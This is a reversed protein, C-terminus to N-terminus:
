RRRTACSAAGSVGCWGIRSVATGDIDVVVVRSVLGTRLGVNGGNVFHELVDDLPLRPESQWGPRIPKKGNLLTFAWGLNEYCHTITAEHTATM